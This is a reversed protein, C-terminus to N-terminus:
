KKHRAGLPGGGPAFTISEVVGQKPVSGGGLSATVTVIASVPAAGVANILIVSATVTDGEACDFTVPGNALNGPTTVQYTVMEQTVNDAPDVAKLNITGTLMGMTSQGRAFTIHLVRGRKPSFGITTATFVNYEGQAFESSTKM